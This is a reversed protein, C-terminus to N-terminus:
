TAHSRIADSWIGAIEGLAIIIASRPDLDDFYAGVIEVLRDVLRDFTSAPLYTAPTM